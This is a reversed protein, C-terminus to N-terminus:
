PAELSQGIRVESRASHWYNDTISHRAILLALVVTGIFEKTTTMKKNNRYKIEALNYTVEVTIFLSYICVM